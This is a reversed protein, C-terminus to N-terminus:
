IYIERERERARERERGENKRSMDAVTFYVRACLLLFTLGLFPALAVTGGLMYDEEV